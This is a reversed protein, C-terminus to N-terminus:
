FTTGANWAGGIKEYIKRGVIDVSLDGTRGSDNTPQGAFVPVFVQPPGELRFDPRPTATWGVGPTFDSNGAM